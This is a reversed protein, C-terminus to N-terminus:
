EDDDGAATTQKDGEREQRGRETQGPLQMKVLRDRDIGTEESIRDIMTEEAARERLIQEFNNGRRKSARSFSSLAAQIELVDSQQSEQRDVWPEEPPQWDVWDWQSRGDATTPAPPLEGGPRMAMAIRWNWLPRLMSDIIWRQRNRISKNVLLLIGKMRSLNAKSFDLTLFEYPTDLACACLGYQLQMYPIHTNGPTPSHKLDIDDGPFGELIQGWDFKFEQRQGVPPASSGRPMSNLGMGGAKKLIGIIKSQTKATNLTSENMDPIDQLAPVIPALEPVERVQDIRWPRCVVPMVQEARVSREPHDTGFRGNKDRSHVRYAEVRGTTPNVRVGEVFGPADSSKRPNRIRETEIPRVTGDSLM